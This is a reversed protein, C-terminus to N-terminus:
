GIPIVQIVGSDILRQLPGTFSTSINYDPNKSFYFRFLQGEEKIEVIPDAPNNM